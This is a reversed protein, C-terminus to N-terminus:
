LVNLYVLLILLIVGPLGFIGVVLATIINLPIYILGTKNILYLVAYGIVFNIILGIIKKLSLHLLFSALTIVVLAVVVMTLYNSM